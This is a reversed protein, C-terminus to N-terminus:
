VVGFAVCPTALIVVLASRRPKQRGPFQSYEAPKQRLDQPSLQGVRHCSPLGEVVCCAFM